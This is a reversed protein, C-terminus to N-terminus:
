VNLIMMLWAGVVEVRVCCWGDLIDLLRLRLLEEEEACDFALLLM